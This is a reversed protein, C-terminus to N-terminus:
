GPHVLIQGPDIHALKRYKLIHPPTGNNGKRERPFCDVRICNDSNHGSTSIYKGAARLNMLPDPKCKLSPAASALTTYTAM